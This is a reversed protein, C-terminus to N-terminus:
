NDLVMALSSITIHIGNGGKKQNLIKPLLFRSKNEAHLISGKEAPLAILGDMDGTGKGTIM